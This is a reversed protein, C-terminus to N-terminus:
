QVTSFVSRHRGITQDCHFCLGLPDSVQTIPHLLFILTWKRKDATTKLIAPKAKQAVPPQRHRLRCKEVPCQEQAATAGSLPQLYAPWTPQSPWGRNVLSNITCACIQGFRNLGNQASHRATETQAASTTAAKADGRELLFAHERCSGSSGQGTPCAHSVRQQQGIPGFKCFPDCLKSSPDTCLAQQQCPGSKATVLAAPWAPSAENINASNAANAPRFSSGACFLLTTWTNRHCGDKSTDSQDAPTPSSPYLKIRIPWNLQTNNNPQQGGRRRLRGPSVAFTPDWALNTDTVPFLRSLRPSFLVSVCCEFVMCCWNQWLM